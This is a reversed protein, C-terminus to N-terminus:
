LFAAKICCLVSLTDHLSSICYIDVAEFGVNQKFSEWDSGQQKMEKTMLNVVSADQWEADVDIVPLQM